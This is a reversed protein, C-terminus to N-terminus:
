SEDEELYKNLRKKADALYEECSKGFLERCQDDLQKLVIAQEYPKLSISRKKEQYYDGFEDKRFSSYSIRVENRNRPIDTIEAFFEYYGGIVYEEEFYDWFCFRKLGARARRYEASNILFRTGKLCITVTSYSGAKSVVFGGCPPVKADIQIVGELNRRSM